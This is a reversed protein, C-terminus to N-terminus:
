DLYIKKVDGNYVISIVTGFIDISDKSEFWYSVNLEEGVRILKLIDYFKTTHTRYERYILEFKM